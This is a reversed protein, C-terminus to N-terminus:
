SLNTLLKKINQRHRIVVLTCILSNAVTLRPDHTLLYTILPAATFAAIAAVSSIRVILFTAAWTIIVFLGVIHNTMCFVAISTAVGKGGKFKLWVPFIHGLIAATGGLIAYLYDGTFKQILFVALAGKGMDLILTLFGFLKSKRFVNTAGINGSGSKRVDGHGGLKALVLGFPISGLLYCAILGSILFILDMLHLMDTAGKSLL